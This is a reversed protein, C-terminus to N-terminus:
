KVRGLYDLVRGFFGRRPPPPPPPPKVVPLPVAAEPYLNSITAASDPSFRTYAYMGVGGAHKVIIVNNGSVGKIEADKLVVGGKLMLDDAETLGCSFLVIFGATLNKM